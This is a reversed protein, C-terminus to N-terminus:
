VCTTCKGSTLSTGCVTCRAGKENSTQRPKPPIFPPVLKTELNIPDLRDRIVFALSRAVLQRLLNEMDGGFCLPHLLQEKTAMVDGIELSGLIKGLTVPRMHLVETRELEEQIRDVIVDPPNGRQMNRLLNHFHHARIIDNTLNIIYERM